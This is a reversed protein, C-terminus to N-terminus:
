PAYPIGLDQFREGEALLLLIDPVPPDVLLDEVFRNYEVPSLTRRLFGAWKLVESKATTITRAREEDKRRDHEVVADLIKDAMEIPNGTIAFRQDVLIEHRNIKYDAGAIATSVNIRRYRGLPIQRQRAQFELISRVIAAIDQKGTKSM